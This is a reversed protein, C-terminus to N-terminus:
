AAEVLLKEPELDDLRARDRKKNSQAAGVSNDNDVALIDSSHVEEVVVPEIDAGPFLHILRVADDAGLGLLPMEFFDRFRMKLVAGVAEEKPIAVIIAPLDQGSWFAAITPQEFLAVLVAFSMEVAVKLPRTDDGSDTAADPNRVGGRCARLREAARRRLVTSPSVREINAPWEPLLIAVVPLMTFVALTVAVCVGVGAVNRLCRSCRCSSSSDRQM